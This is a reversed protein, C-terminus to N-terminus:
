APGNKEGPEAEGADAGGAPPASELFEYIDPVEGAAPQAQAATEAASEEAGGSGGMREEGEFDAAAEDVLVVPAREVPPKAAPPAPPIELVSTGPAAPMDAPTPEVPLERAPRAPRSLSLGLLFVGVVVLLIPWLRMAQELNPATQVVAAALAVLGMVLLVTAPILAWRFESRDGALLYVLFFVLAMGGFLVAGLAEEAIGTGALLLLVIMVLMTGFPILAWWRETRDGFYIVAFALAIGLFLLMGIWEAAVQRTGLFIIGGVALLAFGPIVKWWDKRAALYSALFGLGALAFLGAIVLEALGQFNDFVGFNWLLFGLGVLLLIIGWILSDRSRRM